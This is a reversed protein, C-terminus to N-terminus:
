RLFKNRYSFFNFGKGINFVNDPESRMIDVNGTIEPGIFILFNKAHKIEAVSRSEKGPISEFWIPDARLHQKIVPRALFHPYTRVIFVKGDFGIREM